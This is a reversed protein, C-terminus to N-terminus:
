SQKVDPDYSKSATIWEETIKFDGQKSPDHGRPAGCVCMTSYHRIWWKAWNIEKRDYEILQSAEVSLGKRREDEKVKNEFYPIYHDKYTDIMDVTEQECPSASIEAQRRAEDAVLKDLLKKRAEGKVKGLLEKAEESPRWGIVDSAPRDKDEETM